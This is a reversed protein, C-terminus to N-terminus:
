VAIPAVCSFQGDAMKGAVWPATHNVRYWEHTRGNKGHDYGINRMRSLM